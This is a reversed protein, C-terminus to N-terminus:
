QLLPVQNTSHNFVIEKGEIKKTTIRPHNKPDTRQSVSNTLSEITGKGIQL